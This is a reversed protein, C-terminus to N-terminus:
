ADSWKDRVVQCRDRRKAGGVLRAKLAELRESWLREEIEEKLCFELSDQWPPVVIM